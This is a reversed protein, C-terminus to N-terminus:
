FKHKPFPTMIFVHLYGNHTLFLKTHKATHATSVFECTAHMCASIFKYACSSTLVMNYKIADLKYDAITVRHVHISKLSM